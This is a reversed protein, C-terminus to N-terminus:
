KLLDDILSKLLTYNLAYSTLPYRKAGRSVIVTPTENIGASKGFAVDAQVEKQVGPDKVLAQVKKQQEPNLVTSVTGWVNGSQSWMPQYRFLANAVDDYKGIRAAATAYYAAEKSFKHAAIELPFEHSVICAKGSVVYDKILQPLTNEHFNKCAPCEFDSFIEIMVPASPTGLTKGKDAELSAASASLAALLAFTALLKMLKM